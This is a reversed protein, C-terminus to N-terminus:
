VWVSGLLEYLFASQPFLHCGPGSTNFSPGEGEPEHEHIM